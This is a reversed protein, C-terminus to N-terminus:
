GEREQNTEEDPEITLLVAGSDVQQTTTVLIEGVTGTSPSTIVHEMKMAEMVMLTEGAEVHQGVEVRVDIIVGPMPANLGGPAVEFGPVVFRPVIEFTATGHPTQVYLHDHSRTVRARSRRGDVEVDIESESWRHVRARGREGVEFSGDRRARYDVDVVRDGWRLSTRQRPLRANRWGSPVRSLVLANSRNEGQLWMAAATSAWTLDDDDMTMTRAPDFREIFDTTTDGQLFHEHRLTAVLFDRNTVVGGMHLRELALALVAAAQARTPAHAIVKALLPDFDVTVRSGRAIGSEWRVAPESAPEFAAVTGTAPLFGAAPDEACLRAEIACGNFTIDDQAYGLPAGAAIRLQERVLDIGTVEETVTHEVQLRANVELFYFERTAEDVLFEVTGASQYGIARALELAASGMAQRMADDVVPSPSEEILKQHRRQISCEREGLHVLNGHQDGLIQIEIHRSSAVYREIFIRDDGFGSQAERRAAAVAEELQGASTVIRMGKGGGGAAAKVMLPYGISAADKPDAFSPLTAIGAARAIEKAALKDGMQAIVRACPGVWVLGAEHVQAALDPSEALFGYGPHVAQAGSALAAAVIAAADLYGTELRMAQDCDAVFPASADADVYVGVCRLGMSRAGRIVRRAIEGRNAILLTSFTM